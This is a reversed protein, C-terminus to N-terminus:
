QQRQFYAAGDSPKFYTLVYMRDASLVGFENTAPDYRMVRGAAALRSQPVVYEQAGARLPGAVFEDAGEEYEAATSFTFERHHRQFHDNRQAASIFGRTHM